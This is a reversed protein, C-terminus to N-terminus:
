HWVGCTAAAHRRCPTRPELPEWGRVLPDTAVYAMAEHPFGGNCGNSRFGLRSTVCSVIQQESFDLEVCNPKGYKILYTSELVAVAASRPNTAAPPVHPLDPALLALSALPPGAHQVSRM